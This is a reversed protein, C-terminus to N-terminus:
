KGSLNAKFSEVVVEEIFGEFGVEIGGGRVFFRV